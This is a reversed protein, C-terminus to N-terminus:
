KFVLVCGDSITHRQKMESVPMEMDFLFFPKRDRDIIGISFKLGTETKEVMQICDYLPSGDISVKYCAFFNKGDDIINTVNPKNM